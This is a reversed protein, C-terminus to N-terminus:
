ERETKNSQTDRDQNEACQAQQKQQILEAETEEIAQQTVPGNPLTKLFQIQKRTFEIANHLRQIVKSSSGNYNHRKPENGKEIENKHKM